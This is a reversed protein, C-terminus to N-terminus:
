SDQSIAGLIMNIKASQRRMRIIVVALILLVMMFMMVNYQQDLIRQREQLTNRDALFSLEDENARALDLAKAAKRIEIKM